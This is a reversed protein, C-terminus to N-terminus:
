RKLGQLSREILRLTGGLGLLPDERIRVSYLPPHDLEVGCDSLGRGLAGAVTNGDALVVDAPCDLLSTGADACGISILYSEVDAACPGDETMNVAVPVMGLYAHLTRLAPWVLSPRGELSFSCGRPLGAYQDLRSIERHARRRCAAIRGLAPAPDAGLEQCVDQLWGELAEFGLPAGGPPRLYPIDLNRRYWEAAMAAREDHVAVNLAAEASRQVDGPSWGAGPACLVEVGCLALLRRLDAISDEWGLDAVSVGLLNVAMERPSAPSPALGELVSVMATGYGFSFSASPPPSEMTVTPPAEGEFSLMEGILSAGPSNILALLSPRRRRSDDWLARMRERAGAVYDSSDMYTCPVRSQGLYFLSDHLMPNFGGRRTVAESLSAPYYKCGTPGNMATISGEIGEFAIIAGVLSEPFREAM